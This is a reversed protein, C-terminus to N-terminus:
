VMMMEDLAQDLEDKFVDSKTIQDLGLVESFIYDDSHILFREDEELVPGFFPDDGFADSMYDEGDRVPNELEVPKVQLDKHRNLLVSLPVEPDEVLLSDGQVRALTQNHEMALIYNLAGPRQYETSSFVPAGNAGSSPMGSVVGTPTSTQGQSGPLTDTHVPRSNVRLLVGKTLTLIYNLGGNGDNIALSGLTIEHDGLIQNANAPLGLTGTFKDGDVLDLESTVSYKLAPTEGELITEAKPTVTIARPTIKGTKVVPDIIELEFNKQVEAFQIGTVTVNVAYGNAAAGANIGAYTGLGTLALDGDREVGSAITFDLLNGGNVVNTKDYIKEIQAPTTLTIADSTVTLVKKTITLKGAIYETVEYNATVDRGSADKIVANSIAISYEGADASSSEAFTVTVTDGEIARDMVVQDLTQVSGNYVKSADTATITILRPTITLKGAIYETINYNATVDRGSADKIVANSIAISYEGADASSSEAFTVTVTHGAVGRDMVAQDLTQKRANYEKSADTATVTIQRQTVTLKGNVTTIDYNEALTGSNLKYTLVNASEGVDTQTGTVTIAAGEGAVFDESGTFSGNTLASGDYEKGASAATLTVAKKTIALNGYVYTIKYNGALATDSDAATFTNNKTGSDSFNKVSAFDKYALLEGAVYSGATVSVATESHAKGDYEWTNTGSQLTIARQGITLAQETKTGANLMYYVGDLIVYSKDAALGDVTFTYSGANTAGTAASGNLMETLNLTENDVKLVASVTFERGNYTFDTAAANNQTISWTIGANARAVAINATGTGVTNSKDVFLPNESKINTFTTGTISPHPTAPTTAALSLTGNQITVGTATLAAAAVTKGGFDKAGTGTLNLNNYTGAAIIQEAAGSYAVTGGYSTQSGTLGESGTISISGSNSLLNAGGINVAATDAVTITGTNSSASQIDLVASGSLKATGANTLGDAAVTGSQITLTGNNVIGDLASDKEGGNLILTGDKAVTGGTMSVAADNATLSDVATNNLILTGTSSGIVLGDITLGSVTLDSDLTVGDTLSSDMTITGNTGAYAVADRLSIKGDFPNATDEAIDVKTGPTEAKIAYAGQNFALLTETRSVGNAASDFIVAGDGLGYNSAADATFDAIAAGDLGIWKGYTASGATRDYYCIKGDANKAVLTGGVAGKGAASLKYLNGDKEVVGLAEVLAGAATADALITNSGAVNSSMSGYSYTKNVGYTTYDMVMGGQVDTNVATASSSAKHGAIISNLVYLKNGTGENKIGVGPNSDSSYNDIITSNIVTMVPNASTLYLMGGWSASNKYITTNVVLCEGGDQKIAAGCGSANNESFVVSEYVATGALMRVAAGGASTNTNKNGTFLADKVSLDGAKQYIAVGSGSTNKEFRATGTIDLKGGEMYIVGGDASSNNGSFLTNGTVSLTGALLYIVGGKSSATNGTFAADTITLTGSKQYIVGGSASKNGTFETGTITATGNDTYIAGGSVNSSNGSFTGGTISLTGADQYVAGGYNGKVKNDTFDTDIFNLTGGHLYVAGGNMSYSGTVTDHDKFVTETFTATGGTQVFAMGACWWNNTENNSFITGKGATLTGSTMFIAGGNGTTINADFLSDGSIDLKVTVSADDNGLYVAGGKQATNGSFTGDAVNLTGALLYM